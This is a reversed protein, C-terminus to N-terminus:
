DDNTMVMIEIIVELIANRNISEHISQKQMGLELFLHYPLLLVM